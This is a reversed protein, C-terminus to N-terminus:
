NQIGLKKMQEQEEIYSIYEARRQNTNVSNNKIAMLEMSLGKIKSRKDAPANNKFYDDLAKLIVSIKQLDSIQKNMFELLKQEDASQFKKYAVSNKLAFSNY